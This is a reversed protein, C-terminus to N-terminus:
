RNGRREERQKEGSHHSVCLSQWNEPNWFLAPDSGHPVIHDVVTAATVRGERECMVCLPHRQLQLLRVKRWRADYGRDQASGRRQDYAKREARRAAPAHAACHRSTTAPASCGYQACPKPPRSPM